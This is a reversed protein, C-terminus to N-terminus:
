VSKTEPPAGVVTSSLYGIYAPVLPLVCPSLFSLLGASFALLGGVLMGANITDGGTGTVDGLWGEAVLVGDNLRLFTENLIPFQTTLRGLQGDWLLFAVYLMFIGSIISVVGSYRNMKRLWRSMSGFMAGTLLFPIGLGLSYLLLLGVSQWATDSSLGLLYITGLIPGICPTWGAAFAVGMLSSSFYGWSRNVQHMETVRMESYLLRNPFDLVGVLAEAAPNTALDVRATIVRVLWRFVGLTTLGFFALLVAGGQTLIPKYSDLQSGFLGVAAGTVTFVFTFGAVFFVAHLFVTLRPADGGANRRAQVPAAAPAPQTQVIESMADSMEERV